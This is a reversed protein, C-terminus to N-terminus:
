SLKKILALIKVKSKWAKIERERGLAEKKTLFEEHYMLIWDGSNGTFGRHNTNHRRIRQSLDDGTCGIYFRNKSASFLIYTKQTM